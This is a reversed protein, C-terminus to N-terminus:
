QGFAAHPAAFGRQGSVPTARDAAMITTGAAKAEAGSAARRKAKLHKRHGAWLVLTSTAFLVASLSFEGLGDGVPKGLSLLDSMERALSLTGFWALFVGIFSLWGGKYRLKAALTALGGVGILSLGEVFKLLFSLLPLEQRASADGMVAGLLGTGILILAGALAYWCPFVVRERFALAKQQRTLELKRQGLSRLNAALQGASAFRDQPKGAFCRKLDERLLPEELDKAWDITVPRRLDGVLLQFLVVGLSYIDSQVSASEGAILEPAMYLHTGASSSGPSVMTQTFGLQTLGALAEQSVVQGIGFDTLKVELKPNQIESKPNKSEASRVGCEAILINSPKVDRHIVGADHAAQLADAVQAVIELRTAAPLCGVGGREDCWKKLDRGEVYDMMLYYPPEDFFVDHMRVINPHDGIREKVVRFLTVERKLPRVRDARFCFKFVRREKLTQHRGLWVEGFGGEGLKAELVWQTNPIAHDLAPRWGLVPEADPSLYRRVKESDLPPKLIAAGAEGVECIELPEELGKLLYPGHNLWRLGASRNVGELDRGNLVQRSSDFAPRTMLIQDGEALSMVRACIDVQLGYLDKPKSSDFREEVVVEGIHIGVRDQLPFTTQRAMARLSSQLVLSFQIADSPKMFVIFFSDGATSIEEGEKFRALIERVLAHHRQILAVAEQDGFTQKLQTSGVLDTFLLTLLGIRHKRRFEEIKGRQDLAGQFNIVEDSNM